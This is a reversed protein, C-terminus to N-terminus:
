SADGDGDRLRVRGTLWDVSVDVTRDGLTLSVRGGTSSGDPFFRIGGASGEIEQEGVILRLSIEEPLAQRRAARGASFSRAETDLSFVAEANGTIAASQTRRLGQAIDSAATKLAAGPLGRSIMPSALTLLLAIIGLVVLLEVLTFGKDNSTM